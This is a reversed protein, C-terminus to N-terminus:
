LVHPIHGWWRRRDLTHQQCDGMALLAGAHRVPNTIDVITLYNTSILYATSGSVAMARCGVALQGLVTEPATMNVSRLDDGILLFGIDGTVYMDSIWAGLDVSHVLSLSGPTAANLIDLGGHTHGDYWTVYVTQDEACVSGAGYPTNHSGSVSPQAPNSIDIEFLGGSDGLSYQGDGAFDPAWSVYAVNGNIAVGIAPEPLPLTSLLAPATRNTVDVICLGAEGLTLYAKQERIVIEQPVGFVTVSSVRSPCRTIPDLQYVALTSGEGAYLYDGEVAMAFTQGGIAGLPSMPPLDLAHAAVLFSSMLAFVMVCRFVRPTFM